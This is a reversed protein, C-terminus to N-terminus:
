EIGLLYRYLPQGGDHQEITLDPWRAAVEDCLSAVEAVTADAGVVVTLVESDPTWLAGVLATAAAVANPAVAVIGGDHVGIWDGSAIVLDGSRADRVARTVEGSRVGEALATMAAVNTALSEEPRYGAMASLGEVVSTTPVVRVDCPVLANVQEAVAQINRNNPLLVVNRSQTARVAGALEATSPNMTQGGVVVQAVGRQQLLAVNGSGVAVAVVATEPAPTAGHAWGESGAEERLDTVRIDRPRGADIGAEIAPGVYDTHIHCNYLGDGGIIVISDGLSEWTLRFQRMAVDGAELLYMVEYRLAALEALSAVSPAAFTPPRSEDSTPAPPLPDGTIVHCLAEFLLVLGTGGSDVVGAEKLVVLQEPTQALALHAADRAAVVAQSLTAGSAAGQAAARAISVITGEVPRSVAERALTDANWLGAQLTALDVSGDIPFGQTLGRLLQSLIVGSNGRAGLLSAHAITTAVEGTTASEPLDALALEVAQMTRAMNTGTDGDPVPFVNLRNIVDKQEFLLRSFTMMVRILAAPTLTSHSSMALSAVIAMRNQVSEAFPPATQRLLVNMMADTQSIQPLFGDNPM